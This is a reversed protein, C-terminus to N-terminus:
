RTAYTFQGETEWNAAYTGPPLARTRGSRGDTLLLQTPQSVTNFQGYVYRGGPSWTLPRRGTISMRETTQFTTTLRGTAFDYLGLAAGLPLGGQAVDREGTEWALALTEGDPAPAMEWLPADTCLLADVAGTLTDWQYVCDDREYLVHREDRWRITGLNPVRIDAAIEGHVADWAYLRQRGSWVAVRDRSPSFTVIFVGGMQTTFDALTDIRAEAVDLQALVTRFAGDPETRIAIFRLYRSDPTWAFTSADIYIPDPYLTTPTGTDYDELRFALAQVPRQVLVRYRGSPAHIVDEIMLSVSFNQSRLPLAVGTRTDYRNDRVTSLLIQPSSTAAVSLVVALAGGWLVVWGLMVRGLMRM